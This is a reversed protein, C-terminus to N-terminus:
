AVDDLSHPYLDDDDDRWRCDFSLKPFMDKIRLFVPLPACWATQFFIEVNGCDTSADYVEPRSANWKTGWNAISWDYWNSFGIRQLEAQEEPTFCRPVPKGDADTEEIWSRVENGDITRFGSVTRKLLEPMPIIRNFDFIQDEWKVAELFARLDAPEGDISIRNSTWNPM